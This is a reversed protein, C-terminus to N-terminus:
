FLFALLLNSVDEREDDSRSKVEKAIKDKCPNKTDDIVDNYKSDLIRNRWIDKFYYMLMNLYLTQYVLPWAIRAESSINLRGIVLVVVQGWVVEWGVRKVRRNVM